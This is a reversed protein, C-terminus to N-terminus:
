PSPVGDSVRLIGDSLIKARLGGQGRLWAEAGPHIAGDMWYCPRCEETGLFQVGQLTFTEGILSNLDVGEVVVNRRPASPDRQEPPIALADWLRELVEQAFFTIQGKYDPKHDFFRDGRLGRRAVCTVETVARIPNAGAPQGHRGFFNHGSSIFLHRIKM